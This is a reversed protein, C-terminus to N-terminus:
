RSATKSPPAWKALWDVVAQPDMHRADTLDFSADGNVLTGDAEVVLVTPVGKFKPVGFRAPVDMNKTYRGVDVTVLVYNKDLFSHVQPLEVLGALVRCDGCWNGGFDLLVRKHEKKAKALAADVQANVAANDIAEDYPYPLPQKLEVNGVQPAAVQATAAAPALLPLALLAAVGLASLTTRATM